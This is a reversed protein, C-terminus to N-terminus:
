RQMKGFGGGASETREQPSPPISPGTTPTMPTNCARSTMLNSVDGVLDEVFAKSIEDKSWCSDGLALM